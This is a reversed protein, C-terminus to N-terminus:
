FDNLSLIDSDYSTEPGSFWQIKFDLVQAGVMVSRDFEATMFGLIKCDQFEVSKPAKLGSVNPNQSRLGLALGRRHCVFFSLGM